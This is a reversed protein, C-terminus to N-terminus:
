AMVLVQAKGRTDDLTGHHFIARPKVSDRKGLSDFGWFGLKRHVALFVKGVTNLGLLASILEGVNSWDSDRRWIGEGALPHLGRESISKMREEFPFWGSVM